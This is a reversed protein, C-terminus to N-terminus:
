RLEYGKAAVVECWTADLVGVMPGVRMLADDGDVYGMRRWTALDRENGLFRFDPIGDCEGALAREAAAIDAAAPTRWGYWRQSLNRGARADRVVQCAVLMRADPVSSGVEGAVISAVVLMTM